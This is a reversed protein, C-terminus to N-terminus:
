GTERFSRPSMGKHRSFFKSFSAADAFQLRDAIQAISLSSTSLLFSAEMLLMQNIYDVVTRGTVQRVVRSLYVTSINLQEAYFGIDHHEAFHQPLLRIFGLFIEESRQPVARQQASVQLVDQLELLFVGYLMRLIEQRYIHDSHLYSIIERMKDALRLAFEHPLRQKPQNLQVVPQYALQVLDHVTPTEFTVHEDAMLCIGRYDESASQVAVPLGPSYVYLDDPELELQQGNYIINLQGQTVLTFTYAALYGRIKNSRLTTTADTEVCLIKGDWDSFPEKGIMHLWGEQLSYMALTKPQCLYAFNSVRQITESLNQILESKTMDLFQQVKASSFPRPAFIECTETPM